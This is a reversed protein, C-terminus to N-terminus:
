KYTEQEIDNFRPISTLFAEGEARFVALRERAFSFDPAGSPPAADTACIRGSLGTDALLDTIRESAHGPLVVAFPKEFILSFSTGHFSNTVVFAAGDLLKLFADPGAGRVYKDAKGAPHAARTVCTLPLGLAEAVAAACRYVARDEILAYLLVYSGAKRAPLDLLSRWEDGTHLFVPDRIVRCPVGTERTLLEAASSERVSVADMRSLLRRYTEKEEPLYQGLSAAFSAKRAAPAAFDLFYATDGKTLKLNFVQDSGTIFCDYRENASAVNAPTYAPGFRMYENRFREFARRRSASLVNDRLNVLRTKWRVGRGIPKPRHMAVIGPTRYDILEADMGLARTKQLLSFAQLAAGYNNAGSFTLIGTKM